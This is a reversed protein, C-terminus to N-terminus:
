AELWPLAPELDRRGTEGSPPLARERAASPRPTATRASTPRSGRHARSGRRRARARTASRSAAAGSSGPAPPREALQERRLRREVALDHDHALPREVEVRHLHAEMRGLRPDAAQRSLDRGLITTTRCGARPPRPSRAAAARPAGRELELPARLSEPERRRRARDLLRAAPEVPELREAQVAHDRLPEALRVQGARAFADHLHLLLLGGVADDDPM